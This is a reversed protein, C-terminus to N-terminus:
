IEESTGSIAEEGSDGSVLAESNEEEVTIFDNSQNIHSLTRDIMDFLEERTIYNDPYFNGGDDVIDNEVAFNVYRPYWWMYSIRPNVDDFYTQQGYLDVISGLEDILEFRYKNPVQDAAALIVKLAQIRTVEDDARYPSDEQALHGNVYGLITGINIAEYYEHEPSVDPYLVLEPDLQVSEYSSMALFNFLCFEKHDYCNDIMSKKKERISFESLITNILEGRDIYDEDVEQFEKEEGVKMGKGYIIYIKGNNISSEGNAYRAGIILDNYNDNDLDVSHLTSGFWDNSSEAKILSHIMKDNVGYVAETAGYVLYVEGSSQTDLSNINPAGMIIDAKNDYDIDALFVDAGLLINEDSDNVSIQPYTEFNESGFYVNVEAREKIGKYPFSSVAIDSINDGNVDGTDISFGFWANKAGNSLKFDYDYISYPSTDQNNYDTFIYVAGAKEMSGESAYYAGVIVDERQDANIDASSIESGFRQNADDGYFIYNVSSSLGRNTGYYGYVAGSHADKESSAFPAGVLLDEIGDGDLDAADVSLGFGDEPLAGSYEIDAKALDYDESRNGWNNRGYFVYVKGLRDEGEIANYAGIALDDIKDNNFDGVAFDTGLQDGANEGYIVNDTLDSASSSGQIRADKEGLIVYVAGNWQRGETSYFPSSVVLDPLLDGNIDLSDISSGFQESSAPGLINAKEDNLAVEEHRYVSASAPVALALLLLPIFASYIYSKLSKSM